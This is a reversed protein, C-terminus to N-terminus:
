HQRLVANVSSDSNLCCLADAVSRGTRYKKISSSIDLALIEFLFM